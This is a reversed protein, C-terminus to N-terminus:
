SWNLCISIYFVSLQHFWERADAHLNYLELKKDLINHSICDFAASEDVTMVMAIMREDAASHIAETIQM